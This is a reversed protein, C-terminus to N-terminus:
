CYLYVKEGWNKESVNVNESNRDTEPSSLSCNRNGDTSTCIELLNINILKKKSKLILEADERDAFKIITKITKGLRHFAVIMHKNISIGIKEFMKIVTDELNKKAVNQPIGQIEIYEQRSFQELKYQCHEINVTGKIKKTNSKLLSSTNEVVYLRSKIINNEHLLDQFKKSLDGLRENIINNQQLQETQKGLIEDQLLPFSQVLQESNMKKFQSGPM